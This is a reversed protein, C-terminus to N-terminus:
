WFFPLTLGGDVYLVQGTIFAARPDALFSIAYAIDAPTGTRRTPVRVAMREALQEFEVQSRQAVQKTMESAIFGPAVANATIGYKGLEIAFTKTLGQIGAKAASYNAQGVNGLASTSSVNIIRGWGAERMMDQVERAMLFSGRMHVDVVSDWEDETMHRSLRDRLIGANNVLVHVAGYADAACAVVETASSASSVDAAVAVTSGGAANLRDSLEQAAQVDLDAIVVSLGDSVFKEVVGAGIGKAGGTVIAVTNQQGSV